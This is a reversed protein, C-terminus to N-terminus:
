ELEGENRDYLRTWKKQLHSIPVSMGWPLINHEFFDNRIPLLDLHYLYPLSKCLDIREM